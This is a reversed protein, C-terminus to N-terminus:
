RAAAAREKERQKKVWAFGAELAKAMTEGYVWKTTYYGWSYSTGNGKPIMVPTAMQLVIGLKRSERLWDPLAADHNDEAEDKVRQPIHGFCAELVDWDEDCLFDEFDDPLEDNALVGALFFQKEIRATAEYFRECIKEM